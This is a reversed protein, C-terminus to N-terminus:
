STLITLFTQLKKVFSDNEFYPFYKSRNTDNFLSLFSIYCLCVFLGFVGQCLLLVYPTIFYKEM